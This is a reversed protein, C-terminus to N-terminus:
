WGQEQAEATNYLVTLQSMRSELSRIRQAIMRLQVQAEFHGLGVRDTVERLHEDAQELLERVLQPKGGEQAMRLYVQVGHLRVRTRELEIDQLELFCAMEDQLTGRDYVRGQRRWLLARM